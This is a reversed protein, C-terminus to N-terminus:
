ANAITRWESQSLNLIEGGARELDTSEDYGIDKVKAAATFSNVLGWRTLGAGENGSALAKVINERTYKSTVGVINSARKVVEVLDFNQLKDEAAEMIKECQRNFTEPKVSDLLVDRIQLMNADRIASITQQSLVDVDRDSSARKGVHRKKIATEAVLGNTCLLRLIYPEIRLTGAGVDSTSLMIGMQIIDNVKPNTSVNKQLSPLTAKVYLRMDTLECSVIQFKNDRLIPAAVNMVDYSDMTRDYSPSVFGRLRNGVARLLRKESDQQPKKQLWHNVNEALLPKDSEMLRDYYAKPIETFSAIQQHAWSTPKVVIDNKLHISAKDDMKFAQPHALLDMKNENIFELETAIERLSRGKM